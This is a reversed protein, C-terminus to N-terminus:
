KGYRDQLEFEVNLGLKLEQTPNQGIYEHFHFFTEKLQEEREIKGFSEKLTTIIGRYFRRQPMQMENESGANVLEVQRAYFTGIPVNLENGLAQAIFFRVRDGVKLQVAVQPYVPM